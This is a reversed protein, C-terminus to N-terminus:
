PRLTGTIRILRSALLGSTVAIDELSLYNVIDDKFLMSAEPPFEEDGRHLVVIAEIKPFVPIRVSVDGFTDETGGLVAAAPVISVPNKGFHGIIRDIGRKRYTPNYFSANPLEKFSVFGERGPVRVGTGTAAGARTGLLYHLVLIKEFLSLDPRFEIEPRQITYEKGFFFIRLRGDNRIRAGSNRCLEVPDCRSVQVAAGDFTATYSNEGSIEKEM